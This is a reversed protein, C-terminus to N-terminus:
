IIYPNPDTFFSEPVETFKGYASFSLRIRSDKGKETMAGFARGVMYMRDYNQLFCMANCRFRGKEGLLREM